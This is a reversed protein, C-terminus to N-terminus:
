RAPRRCAKVSASTSRRRSSCSSSWSGLSCVILGRCITSIPGNLTSNMWTVCEITLQTASAMVVGARRRDDVGAIELDIGRGGVVLQEVQVREGLVALAAHQQQQGIRGVDVPRAVGLALAGHPRAHLLDEVAGLPPQDDGAEAGRNVAHLLNEIQRLLEAALDREDAAAHDATM